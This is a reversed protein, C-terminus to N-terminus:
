ECGLVHEAAHEDLSVLILDGNEVTDTLEALKGNRWPMASSVDGQIGEQSQVALVADAISSEVPLSILHGHDVSPSACALFVYVQEKQVREKANSLAEIYRKHRSSRREKQAIFPISSTTINPKPLTDAMITRAPPLLLKGQLAVDQVKKFTSQLTPMVSSGLKYDWHAAVGYEALKHMEESRVQVEFPFKVDNAVVTSTHHLSQYGNPKPFSIYDKVRSSEPEPWKKRILHQAYYCLLRERARTTEPSEDPTWKRARLIVRIAIGDHIDNVSISSSDRSSRVLTSKSTIAGSSAQPLIAERRRRKLLKKWFSFPEKVRATVQMDDLHEMLADDTKLTETVSQLLHKSLKKMALGSEDYLTNVAEYQRKYLISFGREEIRAKLRQMGLRQALTAFVRIAERSTYVAMPTLEDNHIQKQYEIIGELRYLCAICRLALSRWDDMVSLLLGRLEQEYVHRKNLMKHALFEFRKMRAAGKAISIAQKHPHEVSVVSLSACLPSPYETSFSAELLTPITTEVVVGQDDTSQRRPIRMAICDAYHIMCAILFDKSVLLRSVEGHDGAELDLVLKLFDLIGRALLPENNNTISHFLQMVERVDSAPLKYKQLLSYELWELQQPKKNELFEDDGDDQLYRALWPPLEDSFKSISDEQRILPNTTATTTASVSSISDQNFDFDDTASHEVSQDAYWLTTSQRVLVNSRVRFSYGEACTALVLATATVLLPRKRQPRLESISRTNNEGM